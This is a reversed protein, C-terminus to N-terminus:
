KFPDFKNSKFYGTRNRNPNVGSFSSPPSNPFSSSFHSTFSRPININSSIGCHIGSNRSQYYSDMNSSSHAFSQYNFPNM